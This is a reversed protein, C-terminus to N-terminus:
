GVYYLLLYPPLLLFSRKSSPVLIQLFVIFCTACVSAFSYGKSPFSLEMHKRFPGMKAERNKHGLPSRGQEKSQKTSKKPPNYM